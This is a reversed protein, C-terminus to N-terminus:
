RSLWGQAPAVHGLEITDCPAGLSHVRTRPGAALAAVLIQAESTFRFVPARNFSLDGTFNAELRDLARRHNARIGVCRGAQQRWECSNM